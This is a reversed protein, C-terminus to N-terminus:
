HNVVRDPGDAGSRSKGTAKRREGQLLAPVAFLFTADYINPPRSAPYVNLDTFVAPLWLLAMVGLSIAVASWERRRAYVVVAVLPWPKLSATIGVVWPGARTPLLYVLAAVLIPQVNGWGATRYLLGGLLLALALAAWSRRFKFLVLFTAVVLVIAWGIEVALTPLRTLPIWLVAFWPAYRYLDTEDSAPAYVPGGEAIRQAAGLYAHIDNFEWQQTVLVANALAFLWCTGIVFAVEAGRAAGTDPALSGWRWPGRRRAARSM